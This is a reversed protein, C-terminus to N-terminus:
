SAPVGGSGEPPLLRGFLGGGGHGCNAGDPSFDECDLCKLRWRTPGQPGGVEAGEEAPPRLRALLWQLARLAHQLRAEGQGYVVSFSLGRQQLLERLRADEAVQAASAAATASQGPLDRGMVLTMPYRTQMQLAPLVLSDDGHWQERQVATGLATGDAIVLEHRLCAAVIRRTQEGALAGLEKPQPLRGKAERFERLCDETVGVNWGDARLADGLSRALRTKGTGEAGLLAVVKGM